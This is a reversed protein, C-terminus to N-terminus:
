KLKTKYRWYDSIFLFIFKFYDPIRKRFHPEKIIRYPMRLHLKNVWAPYFHLVKSTQHIFGGCTYGCGKWGANRLDLLFMEQLPVGLGAVVIDPSLAQIKRITEVRELPDKFYGDRYGVIQLGPFNNKITSLFKQIEIPKAGIFFLSQEKKIANNFVTPALSTMDFSYRQTNVGVARLAAVFLWGDALIYDFEEYKAPLKRAILYSVPNLFTFLSGAQSLQENNLKKPQKSLKQIIM